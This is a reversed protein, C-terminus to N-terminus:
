FVRLEIYPPLFGTFISAFFAIKWSILPSKGNEGRKQFVFSKLTKKMFEFRRFVGLIESVPLGAFIRVTSFVQFALDVLFNSGNFFSSVTLGSSFIERTTQHLSAGGNQGHNKVRIQTKGRRFAFKM